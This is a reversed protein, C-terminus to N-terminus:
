EPQTFEGSCREALTSLFSKTKANVAIGITNIKLHRLRNRHVIDSVIAAPQVVSGSSPQGDTLLFVAELDDDFDMSQLLAGHTNTSGGLGLRYIFTAADRKNDPTAFVLEQKWTRVSDAYFMIGFENDEPLEQIAKTLAEKAKWLRTGSRGNERTIARMSGSRDIIFLIRKAEIDIGYYKQRQFKIRNASESYSANTFMSDARSRGSVLKGVSKTSSKQWEAFRSEDGLFDDLTVTKFIEDIEFLLQGDIRSRIQSLFEYADPHDMLTLARILNFRFGYHTQWHERRVLQKLPELAELCRNRGLADACLMSLHLNDCDLFGILAERARPEDVSAILAVLETTSQMLPRGNAVQDAQKELALTLEDLAARTAIPNRKLPAITRLRLAENRGTLIRFLRSDSPDTVNPQAASTSHSTLVIMTMCICHMVKFFHM